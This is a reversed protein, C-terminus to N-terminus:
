DNIIKVKAMCMGGYRQYDNGGDTYTQNKCDCQQFDHRFKSVLIAGCALCEVKNM